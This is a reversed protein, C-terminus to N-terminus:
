LPYGYKEVDIGFKEQFRRNSPGYFDALWAKHRESIEPEFTAGRDILVAWLGRLPGPLYTSLSIDKAFKSRISQYLMRKRSPRAKRNSRSEEVSVVPAPCGCIDGIEELFANSNEDMLELPLVHVNKDGFLSAYHDAIECYKLTKIYSVYLNIIQEEIWDDITKMSPNGFLAKNSVNSGRLKQFAYMSALANFQNRVIVLVRAEGFLAKLRQAVLTRDARQQCFVENSLIVRRGQALLPAISAEFLARSRDLSFDIGDDMQISNVLTHVNEDFFKRDRNYYFGLYEVNDMEPFVYTQLYTSACKPFGIHLIPQPHSIMTDFLKRKDTVVNSSPLKTILHDPM